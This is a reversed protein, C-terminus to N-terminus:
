TAAEPVLEVVTGEGWSYKTSSLEQVARCLESEPAVFRARAPFQKDGVRVQVHPDARLNEVWRSTAYEAIVYFRGERETFWIEIQRPKGTRRGRTTLYLYLEPGSSNDKSNSSPNTKKL